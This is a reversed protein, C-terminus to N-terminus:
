GSILVYQCGRGRVATRGVAGRLSQQSVGVTSVPRDEYRGGHEEEVRFRCIPCLDGEIPADPMQEFERRLPRPILHLPEEQMPCGEIAYIPDADELGRRLKEILSSKGAGVPGLLYLVQRSEEGKLAASLDSSCVDSSWDSIRM